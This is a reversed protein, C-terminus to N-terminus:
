VSRCLVTGYPPIGLPRKEAKGPKAIYKRRIQEPEYHEFARQIDRIVWRYPKQLYDKRMTKSDVGPTDSGKNSKINHIATLITTEASMIELLGKFAPRTGAAYATKSRQYLM